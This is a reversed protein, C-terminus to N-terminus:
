VEIAAWGGRQWIVALIGAQIARYAVQSVWVGILGFGLIPGLLFAAPLGLGWQCGLSVMLTTRTAGAGMISNLLILGVADTFITAGSLQLPLRALALTEPDHLFIGLILDPTLLMPIGLGGLLLLGVRVVDWGWRRADESDGSGLAQGVLSAAALGLGIGPLIAVMTVNILVSAAALEATGVQGVIWFLTTFGAAFFFQQAGAPLSLRLMARLTKGHPLGRLFGGERAHQFGLVVYYATGIATAISSGVGAGMAGLEPFGFHGFILAYNLFINVAHMLLITRLYLRSLDVANWYGRFAFNMGVFVMAVLRAQWYPVALEVVAPDDNLFPFLAPAAWFFLASAPLALVAVLLLGGNLPIATEDLRGAGKRRASMAQVGTAMGMIFAMALFNAFSAVGVAALAADGLVGVMGTDVLNLINQSVMGGMIPLAIGLIRRLRSRDM